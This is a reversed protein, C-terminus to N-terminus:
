EICSMGKANSNLLLVEHSKGDNKLSTYLPHISYSIAYLCKEPVKKSFFIYHIQAYIEYVMCIFLIKVDTTMQDRSFLPWIKYSLDNRFSSHPNEGFGYANKSPLYTKKQIFKDSFILGGIM